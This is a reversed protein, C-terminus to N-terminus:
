RPWVGRSGDASKEVCRRVGEEVGSLFAFGVNRRSLGCLSKAVPRFCESLSLLTLDGYGVAQTTADVDVIPHEADQTTDDM